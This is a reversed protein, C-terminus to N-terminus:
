RLSKRSILRGNMSRQFAWMSAQARQAPSFSSSVPSFQLIAVFGREASMHGVRARRACSLASIPRDLPPDAPHSLVWETTAIRTSKDGSPPTEASYAILGNSNAIQKWDSWNEQGFASDCYRRYITGSNFVFQNKDAGSAMGFQFGNWDANGVLETLNAEDEDIGCASDFWFTGKVSQISSLTRRGVFGENDFSKTTAIQNSRDGTPPTPANTKIVGDAGFQVWIDAHDTTGAAPNYAMLMAQNGSRTNVEIGGYRNGTGTGNKDCLFIQLFRTDMADGKTVDALKKYFGNAQIQILGHNEYTNCEPLLWIGQDSCIVMQESGFDWGFEDEVHTQFSSASEGSGIATLGGFGRYGCFGGSEVFDVVAIPYYSKNATQVGFYGTQSVINQGVIHGSANIRACSVNGSLTLAGPLTLNGNSDFVARKVNDFNNANAGVAFVIANDSVLILDESGEALALLNEDNNVSGIEGSCLFTLM